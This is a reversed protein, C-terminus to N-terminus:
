NPENKTNLRKIEDIQETIQTDREKQALERLTQMKERIEKEIKDIDLEKKPTQLVTVFIDKLEENIDGCLLDVFYKQGTIGWFLEIMDDMDKSFKDGSKSKYNVTKGDWSLRDEKRARAIVHFAKLIISEKVESPYKNESM